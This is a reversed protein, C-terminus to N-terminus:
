EKNAISKERQRTLNDEIIKFWLERMTNRSHTREIFAIGDNRIQNWLKEDSHLDLICQMYATPDYGVCGPVEGFSDHTFQSM